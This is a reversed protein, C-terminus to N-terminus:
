QQPKRLAIKHLVDVFWGLVGDAGDLASDLHSWFRSTPHRVIMREVVEDFSRVLVSAAGIIALIYFLNEFFWKAADIISQM